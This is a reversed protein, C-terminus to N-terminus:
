IFGLTQCEGHMSAASAGLKALDASSSKTRRIPAASEACAELATRPEDSVTGGFCGLFAEWLCVRFTPTFTSKDEHITPLTPMRPTMIKRSAISLAIRCPDVPCGSPREHTLVVTPRLIQSFEELSSDEVPKEFVSDIEAPAPTKETEDPCSEVSCVSDSSPSRFAGGRPSSPATSPLSASGGSSELTASGAETEIEDECDDLKWYPLFDVAMAELEAQM